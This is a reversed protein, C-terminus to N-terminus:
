EALLRFYTRVQERADPPVSERVLAEEARKRYENFVNMFPLQSRGRGGQGVIDSDYAESEGPTRVGEVFSDNRVAWAPPQGGRGSQGSGAGAERGHTAEGDGLGEDDDALFRDGGLDDWGRGAEGSPAPLPRDGDGLEEDLLQELARQVSDYARATDGSELAELGNRLARNVGDQGAGRGRAMQRLQEALELFQQKTLGANGLSGVLEQMRRLRLQYSPGGPAQQRLDPLSGPQQLLKLRGDATSLFAHSDPPLSGLRTDRFLTPANLASAPPLLPTEAVERRLPERVAPETAPREAPRPPGNSPVESEAAAELGRAGAV